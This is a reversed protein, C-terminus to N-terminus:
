LNVSKMGTKETLDTEPISNLIGTTIEATVASMDDETVYGLNDASQLYSSLYSEIQDQFISSVDGYSEEDQYSNSSIVKDDFYKFPNGIILFVGAIVVVLGITIYILLYKQNKKTKM